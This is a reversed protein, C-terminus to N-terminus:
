DLKLWRGEKPLFTAPFIARAKELLVPYESEKMKPSLHVLGLRGVGADRALRAADQATSHGWMAKDREEPDKIALIEEEEFSADHLLVQVDAARQVLERTPRRDTAYYLLDEIRYAVSPVTHSQPHVGVRIGNIRHEGERIGRIEIKCPFGSLPFFLPADFLRALIDEPRQGETGSEPAYIIVRKGTFNLPLYSIGIIHDLHYHSLFISITEHRALLASGIRSKFRRMGSGADLVFLHAGTELLVCMTERSHSPIWGASGFLVMRTLVKERSLDKPM